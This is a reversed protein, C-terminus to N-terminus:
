KKKGSKGKTASASQTSKMYSPVGSRGATGSYARPKRIQTPPTVPGDLRTEKLSYTPEAPKPPERAQFTRFPRGSPSVAPSEGSQPSAAESSAARAAGASYTGARMRPSPKDSAEDSPTPEPAPTNKREERAKEAAKSAEVHARTSEARRKLMEKYEEVSSVKGKAPSGSADSGRYDDAPSKSVARPVPEPSKYSRRPANNADPVFTSSSRVRAAIDAPIQSPGNVVLPKDLEIGSKRQQEKAANMIALFEEEDIEANGDTDVLNMLDQVEDHSCDMGMAVSLLKRLEEADISGSGDADFEKFMARFQEEGMVEPTTELEKRALEKVEEWFAEDTVCDKLISREKDNDITYWENRLCEEKLEKQSSNRLKALAARLRKDEVKSLRRDGLGHRVEKDSDYDENHNPVIVRSM